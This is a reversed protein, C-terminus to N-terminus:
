KYIYVNLCNLLYMDYIYICQTMESVVRQCICKVAVM